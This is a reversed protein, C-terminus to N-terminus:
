ASLAFDPNMKRLIQKVWVDRTEEDSARFELRDGNKLVLVFTNSVGNIAVPNVQAIEAFSICRASKSGTKNYELQKDALALGCDAFKNGRTGAKKMVPKALCEAVRKEEASTNARKDLNNRLDALEQDKKNLMSELDKDKKVNTKGGAAQMSNLKAKWEQKYNLPSDLLADIHHRKEALLEQYDAELLRNQRTFV